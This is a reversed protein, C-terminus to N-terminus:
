LRRVIFDGGSLVLVDGHVMSIKLREHNPASPKPKPQPVVAKEKGKDKKKGNPNANTDPTSQPAVPNKLSKRPKKGKAKQGPEEDIEGPVAVDCDVAPNDEINVVVGSGQVCRELEFEVTAGLCLIFM